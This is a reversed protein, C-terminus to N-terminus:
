SEMKEIKKKLTKFLSKLEDFSTQEGLAHRLAKMAKRIEDHKGWMVTTPGTFGKEELKSFLQNEKRQYHKEFAFLDNVKEQIEEKVKSDKRKKLKEFLKELEELHQEM